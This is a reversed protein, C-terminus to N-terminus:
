EWTGKGSEKGTKNKTKQKKKKQKKKKKNKQKKKKKKKKKKTKKKKSKAKTKHTYINRNIQNFSIKFKLNREGRMPVSRHHLRLQIAQRTGWFCIREEKKKKMKKKFRKENM